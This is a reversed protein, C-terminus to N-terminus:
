LKEREEDNLPPRTNTTCAKVQRPTTDMADDRKKSFVNKWQDLTPRAKSSGKHFKSKIWMYKTHHQVAGQKWDLYTNPDNFKAVNIALSAPLRDIFMDIVVKDDLNYGGIRALQEFTSIYNDLGQDGKMKLDKINTQADVERTINTFARYFSDAM